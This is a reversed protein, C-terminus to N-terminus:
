KTASAPDSSPECGDRDPTIAASEELHQFFGRLAKCASNRDGICGATRRFQAGDRLGKTYWLLHKRFDRTGIQEGYFDIALALHRCIVEERGPLSPASVGAGSLHSLINGILWPNGLVGRAVMVADCGTERFMREADAPSRVDGSGIVPVRLREKLAAILGWDSRGGFGQEATRPHLIVADVGCEQAIEGIEIANVQRANWGARIKVTLPLSTANRVARLIAAARAPERMLGAGSGSRVVKKVPCGMNIDLLDAGREGAVQAAAALIAPDSGFLQVGLPRDAPASALYRFTKEAKRVLGTASVMETFALSCGFSRVITRFPLDTIGAMPALLINNKLHLRGINM